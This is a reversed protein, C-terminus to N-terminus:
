FTGTLGFRATRPLRPVTIGSPVELGVPYGTRDDLLNFVGAFYRLRFRAGMHTQGSLMLNWTLADATVGGDVNPAATARAVDLVMETGVRLAAGM